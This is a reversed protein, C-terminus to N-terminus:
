AIKLVADKSYITGILKKSSEIFAKVKRLDDSQVNEFPIFFHYKKSQLFDVGSQFNVGATDACFAESKSSSFFLNFPATAMEERLDELGKGTAAVMSKTDMLFRFHPTLKMDHIFDTSETSFLFGRMSIQELNMLAAKEFHAGYEFLLRTKCRVRFDRKNLKDKMLGVMVFDQYTARNFCEAVAMNKFPGTGSMFSIEIRDFPDFQDFTKFSGLLYREYLEYMTTQIIKSSTKIWVPILQLKKLNTVRKDFEDKYLSDSEIHGKYALCTEHFDAWHFSLNSEHGLNLPEFLDFTQGQANKPVASFQTPNAM